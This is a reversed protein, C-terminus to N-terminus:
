FMERGAAAAEMLAIHNFQVVLLKEGDFNSKDRETIRIENRSVVKSKTMVIIMMESRDNADTQQDIEITRTEKQGKGRDM